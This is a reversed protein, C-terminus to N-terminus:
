LVVSLLYVTLGPSPAGSWQYSLSTPRPIYFHDYLCGMAQSASSTGYKGYHLNFATGNPYVTCTRATSTTHYPWILICCESCEFPIFPDVPIATLITATGNNLMAVWMSWQNGKNWSGAINGAADNSMFGLPRSVYDYGAGLTTLKVPTITTGSPVSFLDITGDVPSTASQWAAYITYVTSAAEAYDQHLGGPGAVALNMTKNSSFSVVRQSVLDGVEVHCYGDYGNITLTNTSPNTYVFDAGPHSNFQQPQNPGITAPM